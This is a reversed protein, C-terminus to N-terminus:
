YGWRFTESEQQRSLASPQCGREAIPLRFNWLRSRVVEAKLEMGGLLCSQPVRNGRATASWRAARHNLRVVLSASSQATSEPELLLLITPTHEVARQFRFWYALPVRRLGATRSRPVDGADLAVLGFGGSHLLLDMVKLAREMGSAEKKGDRLSEEQKGSAEGAALWEGSRHIQSRGHRVVNHCRVWLLRKLEVGAARASRPDFSDQADVLACVEDNATMKALLSILLSTRGSSAPGVIETLAGRPLGGTIADIEPIGCSVTEAARREGRDSRPLHFAFAPGYAPDLVTEIQARLAAANM